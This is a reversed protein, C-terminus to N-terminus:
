PAGATARTLDAVLERGAATAGAMTSCGREWAAAATWAEAWRWANREITLAAAAARGAAGMEARRAPDRSLARLLGAWERPRHALVTGPSMDAWAAYPETPAAVCPVGVANLELPKLWSKAQNFRTQALPAIGVGFRAIALPWDDIGVPGPGPPNEGLGLARGVGDPQGVTEFRGGGALLQAVAAGVVQLDDPHSHVSGGWGVLDSDVHGVALYREPVCNPVIVSGARQNPYSAALRPTTVTVMTALSCARAANVASHPNPIRVRKNEPHPIEKALTGFAPNAPHIHSLDDDMDVVVACGRARVMPIMDVLFSVTPRQLVIVDADAPFKEEAVQGKFNFGVRVAREEPGVVTVDLDTQADVAAAPWLMRYSGCGTRDGPYLYVRLTV